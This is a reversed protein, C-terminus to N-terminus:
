QSALSADDEFRTVEHLTLRGRDFRGPAPQADEHHTESRHRRREHRTDLQDAATMGHGHLIFVLPLKTGGGTPLHLIYNRAKGGFQMNVTSTQAQAGALFALFAAAIASRIM